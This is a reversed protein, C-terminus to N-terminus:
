ISSTLGMHNWCLWGALVNTPAWAAAAPRPLPLSARSWRVPKGGGLLQQEDATPGDLRCRGRPPCRASLPRRGGRRAAQRLRSLAACRPRCPKTHRSCRRDPTIVAPAPSATAAGGAACAQWERFDTSPPQGTHLHDCTCHFLLQLLHAMEAEATRRTPGCPGRRQREKPVAAATGSSHRQETAPSPSSSTWRWWRPPSPITPSRTRRTRTWRRRDVLPQCNCSLLRALPCQAAAPWPLLVYPHCAHMWASSRTDWGGQRM